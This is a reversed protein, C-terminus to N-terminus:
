VKEGDMAQIFGFVLDSGLQQLDPLYYFVCDSSILFFNVIVIVLCRGKLNRELCLILLNYVTNRGSQM